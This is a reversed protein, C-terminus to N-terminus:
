AGAAAEIRGGGARGSPGPKVGLFGGRPNSLFTGPIELELIRAAVRAQDSGAPHGNGADHVLVIAGPRARRWWGELEGLRLEFASDLVSLEAWAFDVESPTPHPSLQHSPEGFFPLSALARRSEEDGEFCCLLGEPGIREALRRTLFGQGTGTEIVRRPEAMQVLLAALECFELEPSLANWAHWGPSAPATFNAEDVPDPEVEWAAAPETADREVADATLRDGLASVLRDLKLARDDRSYWPTLTSHERYYTEEDPLNEADLYWTWHRAMYPYGTRVAPIFDFEDPGRYLAFTTDLYADYLRPALPKQWNYREILLAEDKLPYADPIDDIRLGFGAKLHRPYRDLIEAFYDIADLPCEEIPVIDPDSCVFPGDIKLEGLLGGRWLAFPGLNEELRLVRHPTREYYELLPPYSSANDVLHIDECGARELYDVLELLPSLRDRCILFVPVNV